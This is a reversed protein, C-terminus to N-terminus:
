IKALSNRNLRRSTFELAQKTSYKSQKLLSLIPLHDSIDSLIIASEFNRYLKGSVFINDILTATQHTIKTPRTITPLMDLDLLTDLFQQTLKHELSKLLDLNRDMGIILEKKEKQTKTIIEQIDSILNKESCNPRYLSGIVILQGNKAGIEVFTSELEKEKFKFVNPLRKCTIGNRVLIATSGGKHQTRSDAFINYGPINLLSTTNNSLFTECLMLVDIKSRKNELDRLLQNLEMQKSLISRINPQLVALNYNNPNLDRCNEIDVYDCKDNWLSQDLNETIIPRDLEDNLKQNKGFKCM